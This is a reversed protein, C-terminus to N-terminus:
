TCTSMYTDCSCYMYKDLSRCFMSRSAISVNACMVSSETGASMHCCGTHLADLIEVEAEEGASPCVTSYIVVVHQRRHVHLSHSGKQRASGRNAAPIITCTNQKVSDRKARSGTDNWPRVVILTLKVM